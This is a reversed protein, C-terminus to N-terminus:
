AMSLSLQGVFMSKFLVPHLSHKWQRLAKNLQSLSDKYIVENTEYQELV